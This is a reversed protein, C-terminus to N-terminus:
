ARRCAARHAARRPCQPCGSDAQAGPQHCQAARAAPAWTASPSSARWWGTTRGSGEGTRSPRLPTWVDVLLIYPFRAADRRHRHLTRGASEHAGIASPDGLFVRQWLGYSMVALAPGGPVDEPAPSSAAWRRPRHRARPLIGASVRQQRIFELQRGLSIPAM